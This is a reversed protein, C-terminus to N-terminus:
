CVVSRVLSFQRGFRWDAVELKIEAHPRDVGVPFAFKGWSQSDSKNFKHVKQSKKVVRGSRPSGGVIATWKEGTVTRWAGAREGLRHGHVSRVLSGGARLPPM